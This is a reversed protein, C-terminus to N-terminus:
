AEQNKFVHRDAREGTLAQLKAVVPIIYICQSQTRPKAVKVLSNIHDQAKEQRRQGRLEAWTIYSDRERRRYIHDCAPSVHAEEPWASGISEVLSRNRARICCRTISM